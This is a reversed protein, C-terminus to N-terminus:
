KSTNQVRPLMVEPMFMHSWTLLQTDLWARAQSNCESHPHRASGLGGVCRGLTCELWTLELKM